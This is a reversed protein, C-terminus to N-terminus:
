SVAGIRKMDRGAGQGSSGPLMVFLVKGLIDRTDVQGIDVHRSDCSENRNDGMLFVHGEEVTLPFQVGDLGYSRNTPTNVYDEELAKGDVYVIGENFDIDVTQGEVAIVRKVIPEEDFTLVRAVVIDGPKVQRYFVNSLLAVYDRNQLTPYMSSGSVSVVRIAFVFYVTVIALIYVVDHLLTYLDMVWGSKRPEQNRRVQARRPSPCSEAAPQEPQTEELTDEGILRRIESLDGTFDSLQEDLGQGSTWNEKDM